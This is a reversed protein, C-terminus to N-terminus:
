SQNEEGLLKRVEDAEASHEDVFRVFYCSAQYEFRARDTDGLMQHSKWLYYHALFEANRGGLRVAEAQAASLAQLGEAAAGTKVLLYGLELQAGLHVGELRHQEALRLAERAADLAAAPAGQKQLLGARLLLAQANGYPDSQARYHEIARDLVKDAETFEGSEVILRAEQHHVWASEPCSEDGLHTAAQRV